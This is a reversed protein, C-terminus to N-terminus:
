CHTCDCKLFREIVVTLRTGCPPWPIPTDCCAGKSLKEVIVFRFQKKELRRCSRRFVRYDWVRSVNTPLVVWHRFWCGVIHTREESQCGFIRGPGFVHVDNAYELLDHLSRTHNFFFVIGCIVVYVSAVINVSCICRYRPAKLNFEPSKETKPLM